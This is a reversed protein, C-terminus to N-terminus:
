GIFPGGVFVVCLLMSIFNPYLTRPCDSLFAYLGYYSEKNLGKRFDRGEKDSKKNPESLAQRTCLTRNLPLESLVNAQICLTVSDLFLIAPRTTCYLLLYALRSFQQKIHHNYHQHHSRASIKYKSLDLRM